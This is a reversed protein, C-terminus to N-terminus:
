ERPGFIATGVRVQTAGEAIAVELDDSMGMSLTPLDHTEALGRLAAFCRRAEDRDAPPLTMLGCLALMPEARVQSILAPLAAPPVGSKSTELEFDVQVLIELPRERRRALARALKASHLSDVAHAHAAIVGAKNTQLHGVFRMTLGPLSGLVKMKDALEQAYSEGFTRQGAEYAARIAEPPHRKSVAVLEVAGPDRRAARCAAHIREQVQALREAIVAGSLAM